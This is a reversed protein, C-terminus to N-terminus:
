QGTAVEMLGLGLSGRVVERIMMPLDRVPDVEDVLEILHCSTRSCTLSSAGHQMMREQGTAVEMLGLGLSGRVVERTMMPLDRAPDVEDVLEILHCSTRSCTLSSAGHQMMREQGTAVEM